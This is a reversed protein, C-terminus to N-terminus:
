LRFNSISGGLKLFDSTQPLKAMAGIGGITTSKRSTNTSEKSSTNSPIRITPMGGDIRPPMMAKITRFLSSVNGLTAAGTRAVDNAANLQNLINDGGTTGHIRGRSSGLDYYNAQTDSSTGAGSQSRGGGFPIWPM